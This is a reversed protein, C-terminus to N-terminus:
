LLKKGINIGQLPDLELGEILVLFAEKLSPFKKSLKRLKKDFPPITLVNYNM